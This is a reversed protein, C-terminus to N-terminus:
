RRSSSRFNIVIDLVVEVPEGQLLVPEFIWQRAAGLATQKLIPPGTLIRSAVIKGNTGIVGEILVNGQLNDSAMSSPYEPSPSFLVKLATKLAAAPVRRPIKNAGDPPAFLSEDSRRVANVSDLHIRVSPRGVELYTLDQAVYSDGVSVISNYLSQRAGFFTERLRLIPATPSLCYITSASPPGTIGALTVCNLHAAGLIKTETGLKGKRIAEASPFQPYLSSHAAFLPDDPWNQDGVRFLGADTSYDTQNFGPGSYTLKYKKDSVRIEDIKGTQKVSGKDDLWQYTAKIHLPDTGANQLGNKKAVLELLAAPDSPMEAKGTPANGLPTSATPAATPAATQGSAFATVCVLILAALSRYQRPM